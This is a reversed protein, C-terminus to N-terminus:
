CWQGQFYCGFGKDSADTFLEVDPSSPWDTDYLYSVGNWTPLYTLWWNVDEWFEANLKIYHHLYCAKKSMEIMRCLFALGPPCVSCIFHLKGILSLIEWKMALKAQRFSTLKHTIAKLCEPDIHAM